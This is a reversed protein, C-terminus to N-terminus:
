KAKAQENEFDKLHMLSAYGFFLTQLAWARCFNEKINLNKALKYAYIAESIHAALAAYWTVQLLIPYNDVLEKTLKGLIGLSRHPVTSPEYVCWGLLSMGFSIPLVWWITTKKFFEIKSM